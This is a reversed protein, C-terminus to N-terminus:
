KQVVTPPLVAPVNLSFIVIVQASVTVKSVQFLQDASIDLDVLDLRARKGRHENDEDSASSKPAVIDRYISHDGIYEFSSDADDGLDVPVDTVMVPAGLTIKSVVENNEDGPANTVEAMLEAKERANEVAAVRAENRYATINALEYVPAAALTVGLALMRLMISSFLHCTCQNDTASSGASSIVVSETEDKDKADKLIVRIVVSFDFKVATQHKKMEVEVKRSSVSDTCVQDPPVGLSLLVTRAEAVLRLVHKLGQAFNPDSDAVKFSLQIFDPDVEFTDQGEVAITRTSTEQFINVQHRQMESKDDSGYVGGYTPPARRRAATTAIQM